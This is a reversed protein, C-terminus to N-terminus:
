SRDCCRYSVNRHDSAAPQREFFLLEPQSLTQPRPPKLHTRIVRNFQRIGISPRGIGSCVHVIKACPLGLAATLQADLCELVLIGQQRPYHGLDSEINQPQAPKEGPRSLRYEPLSLHHSEPVRNPRNPCKNLICPRPSIPDPQAIYSRREGAFEDCGAFAIKWHVAM